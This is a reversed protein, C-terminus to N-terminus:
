WVQMLFVLITGKGPTKGDTGKECNNGECLGFLFTQNTPAHHVTATGEIGKNDSEFEYDLDCDDLLSPPSDALLDSFRRARSHYKKKSSTAGLSSAAVPSTEQVLIFTKDPLRTIAEYGENTVAPSPLAKFEGGGNKCNALQEDIVAVNHINDFDVVLKGEYAIVGSAELDGTSGTVCLHVKSETVLELDQVAAYSLTVVLIGTALTFHHM